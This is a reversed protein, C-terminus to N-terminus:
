RSKVVLAGYSVSSDTSKICKSSQAYSLNSCEYAEQGRGQSVRLMHLMVSIPHRGCITNEFKAQVEQFSYPNCSEIASICERDMAEISQWIEGKSRDYLTYRFRSGWHCFDSSIVFFNTPDDLFPSLLAGYKEEAEEDLAGVIIPVLTFPRGSMVHQIFPTHLELSHEAEEQSLSVTDFHGTDMLQQTIPRDITIDGLPTEYLSSESLLCKKSYFHHSPGLLFVRSISVKVEAMQKYAHAAIPGSYAYGAHPAIICRARVTGRGVGDDASSWPVNDMWKSIQGSLEGAENSYWSGAHSASKRIVRPM